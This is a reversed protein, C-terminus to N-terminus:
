KAGYEFRQRSLVKGGNGIFSVTLQISGRRRSFDLVGFNREALMAGKRYRNPESGGVSWTHTLGSSTVDVLEYPLGEVKMASVEAMHRDGSLFVVGKPKVRALLDLMRRYAAPFNAWKEFGHEGSIFQISSGILNVAATSTRLEQELWKWQEEGLIDGDPNIKYRVGKEASRALTDRFYRTDLLLLKVPIRANGLMYSQYVGEQKRVPAEAPVDLFDLLVQQSERKKSFYKGGDNVGYDHDDWTGYVPMVNLLRQYTPRSKQRRYMARLSDTNHTDGYINDGLWIWADPKKGIVEQWLQNESQQRSCSGFTVRVRQAPLEWCVAILASLLLYGKNM